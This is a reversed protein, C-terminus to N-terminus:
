ESEKAPARNRTEDANRERGILQRRKRSSLWGIPTVVLKMSTAVLQRNQAREVMLGIHPAAGRWGFGLMFATAM